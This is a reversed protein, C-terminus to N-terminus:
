NRGAALWAADFDSREITNPFGTIAPGDENPVGDDGVHPWLEPYFRSDFRRPVTTTVQKTGLARLADIDEQTIGPATALSGLFAQTQPDSVNVGEALIADAIGPLAAKVALAFANAKIPGLLQAAVLPTLKLNTPVDATTTTPEMLWVWAAANDKAAYDPKSLEAKLVNACYPTLM